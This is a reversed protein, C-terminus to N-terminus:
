SVLFKKLKGSGPASLLQSPFYHYLTVDLNTLSINGVMQAMNQVYSSSIKQKMLKETTLKTWNRKSNGTLETQSKWSM